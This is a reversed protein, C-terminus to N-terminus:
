VYFRLILELVILGVTFYIVYEPKIKITDKPEEGYRVIGAMGAPIRNQDKKAM